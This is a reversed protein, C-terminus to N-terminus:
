NNIIKSASDSDCYLTANKHNRLISAPCMETIQGKCVAEVANAKTPAPVVCFIKDASLLTPITLTIAHTPVKDISPFCGDNVQQMRCMEDLLVIKVPEPDNFLAVHPDNFAIHGNEGIGMFVIDINNQGLLEKYSDCIAEPSQKQTYIYHVSKFPFRSFVHEELYSRFCSPSDVELGVYEDMHFANIRSWDINGGDLEKLVDNQSPAAAFVINLEEKTELEKNIYDIADKAASQGMQQRTSYIEVSLNDIQFKTKM